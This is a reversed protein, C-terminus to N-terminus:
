EVSRISLGEGRFPHNTARRPFTHSTKHKSDVDSYRENFTFFLILIDEADDESSIYTNKTDLM